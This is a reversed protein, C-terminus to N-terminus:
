VTQEMIGDRIDIVLIVLDALSGGRRRLNTFAAHGPTDILLFGPIGLQINFKKLLSSALKEIQEAPLITCSIRQTISGAEKKAVSTGRIRDLLSTKGHDVHGAVTVIPQRTKGQAARWSGQAGHGSSGATTQTSSM